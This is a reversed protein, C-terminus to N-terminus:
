RQTQQRSKMGGAIKGRVEREKEARGGERRRVEREREKECKGEEKKELINSGELSLCM